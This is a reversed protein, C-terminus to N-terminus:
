GYKKEIVDWLRAEAKGGYVRNMRRLTGVSGVNIETLYEGILDIGVFVLGREKLVPGLKACLTKERPTPEYAVDVSNRFVRFEQDDQPVSNIAGAYAGDFFIIRKNGQAIDKLFPQLMLPATSEELAAMADRLDSTRLIGHGHFGYLPKIVIDGHKAFFEKIEDKDRTVLTPPLFDPYDFISLKDPMNRIWFPDNIVKVGSAKLRELMHTNTVYGMDFPPDQRFFVLDFGALDTRAYEGLTYYDDRSLDVRVPAASAFVGDNGLAASNPHYHFVAHGRACAEEMMVLSHTEERATDAMNEMQFAVKM